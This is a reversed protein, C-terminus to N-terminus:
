PLLSSPVEWLHGTNDAYVGIIEQREGYKIIYITKGNHETTNLLEIKTGDKEMHTKVEEWTLHIPEEELSVWKYNDMVWREDEKVLTFYVSSGGAVMHDFEISSAVVRESSNEHVTFRIDLAAYPYPPVDCSCYFDNKADKLFGDTFNESAYKLLEPRLITFDPHNEFSWNHEEGLRNFTDIIGSLTENVVKKAEKKSLIGLEGHVKAKAQKALEDLSDGNGATNLATESVTNLEIQNMKYLFTIVQARTLDNKYGFFELVHEKKDHNQGTSVQHDLLFQISNELDLRDHGLYVLAQAVLGRKAPLNRLSHDFYGNLPVGYSALSNYVPDAWHKAPTEKTLQKDVKNLEFFNQLMVAFQAESVKNNPGFNGDEYGSVISNAKAWAVAEYAYHDEKVDPFSAMAKKPIENTGSTDALANSQISMAFSLCIISVLISFLKKM